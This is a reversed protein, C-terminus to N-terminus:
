SLALAVVTEPAMARGEAYMREFKTVGIHTRVLELDQQKLEQWEPWTIDQGLKERVSDAGGFL